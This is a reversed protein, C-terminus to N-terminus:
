CATVAVTGSYERTRHNFASEVEFLYKCGNAIINCRRRMGGEGLSFDLEASPFNREFKTAMAAMDYDVVYMSLSGPLVRFGIRWYRSHIPQSAMMAAITSANSEIGEDRLLDIFQDFVDEQGM